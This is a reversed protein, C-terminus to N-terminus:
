KDKLLANAKKVAECAALIAFARKGPPTSISKYSAKLFEVALGLLFEWESYKDSHICAINNRIWNLAYVYGRNGSAKTPNTMNNGEIFNKFEKLQKNISNLKYFGITNQDVGRVFLDVALRAVDCSWHKFAVNGLDIIISNDSDDILINEAHLDGHSLIQLPTSAESRNNIKKYSHQDVIGMLLGDDYCDPYKALIPKLSNIANIIFLKRREDLDNLINENIRKNTNKTEGHLNLIGNNSFIKNLINEILDKKPNDNLFKLLTNPFPVFEYFIPYWGDVSIDEPPINEAGVKTISRLFDSYTSLNNHEELLSKRNKSIKLLRSIKDFKIELVHAGSFGPTIAKVIVQKNAYHPNRKVFSAVLQGITEEGIDFIAAQTKFDNNCDFDILSEKIELLKSLKDRLEDKFDPNRSHNKNIFEIKLKHKRRFDGINELVGPHKSYILIPIKNNYRNSISNLLDFGTDNDESDKIDLIILDYEVSLMDKEFDVSQKYFIYELKFGSEEVISSLFNELGEYIDQDDWHIIKVKQMTM